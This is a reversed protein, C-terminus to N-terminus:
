RLSREEQRSDKWEIAVPLDAGTLWEAGRNLWELSYIYWPNGLTQNSDISGIWQFRVNVNRIVTKDHVVIIINKCSIAKKTRKLYTKILRM